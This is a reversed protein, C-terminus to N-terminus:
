LVQEGLELACAGTRCMEMIGQPRMFEIFDNITEMKGTMEIVAANESLAIIRAGYPTIRELLEAYGSDECRTKLLLLERSVLKEENIEISRKVDELKNLQKQIQHILPEDGETLITIRSFAPNETEGVTLAKINFGRRSFLNTVRTLVGFHNSVLVSLMGSSM